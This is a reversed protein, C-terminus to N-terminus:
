AHSLSGQGFFVCGEITIPCLRLMKQLITFFLKTGRPVAVFYPPVDNEFLTQAELFHALGEARGM